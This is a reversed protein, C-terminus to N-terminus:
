GYNKDISKSLLYKIVGLSNYLIVSPKEKSNNAINEIM